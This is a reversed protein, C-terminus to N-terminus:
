EQFKWHVKNETRLDLYLIRELFDAQASISDSLLFAELNSYILAFDDEKRWVIKGGHSLYLNYNSNDVELAVPEINLSSLNKMFNLLLNFEELPLLRKGVPDEIVNETNYVFYAVGFFSPAPAFIFGESDIFYCDSTTEEHFADSCYLAFPERDEVSVLLKQPSDLKLDVSKLRPFEKLLTNKIDSRPYVLASSRPIFWLYHDALLSETTQLIEDLDITSKELVEVESILQSPLRTLYVFSATLILLGLLILIILLRRKKQKKKYFKSSHIVKSRSIIKM